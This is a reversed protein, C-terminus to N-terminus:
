ESYPHGPNSEEMDSKKAVVTAVLGGAFGFLITLACHCTGDRNARNTDVVM